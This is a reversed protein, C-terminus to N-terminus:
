AEASIGERSKESDKSGLYVPVSEVLYDYFFIEKLTQKRQGYHQIAKGVSDQAQVQSSDKMTVQVVMTYTM